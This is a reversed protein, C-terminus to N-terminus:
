LTVLRLRRHATGTRDHFKEFGKERLRESFAHSSLRERDTLGERDAWRKYLAYADRAHTADDSGADPDTCDQLFGALADNAERYNASALLVTPPPHLGDRQWAACGALMWNLISSAEDRLHDALTLDARSGTFTQDFPLVHCRRWFALSDDSVKPKHNAALLIKGEPVFSFYRGFLYRATIVEGGTLGKMRGEDLRTGERTESAVILRRSQFAALEPSPVDGGAGYRAAFAHFPAIHAYSGMVVGLTSLLVSKGNAGLGHLLVFVQERVDGTLCYGALRQLYAIVAVDGAFVEDLFRDFRPASADPDYAAGTCNRCLDSARAPRATGTRLDLTATPTTLLWKDRDWVDSTVALPPRRKALELVNDTGRRSELGLAFKLLRKRVDLDDLTLAHRQIARALEVVARQRTGTVDERWIPSQWAYWTAQQQDFRLDDGAHQALLEAAHADTLRSLDLDTLAAVPAAPTEADANRTSFTNAPLMQGRMAEALKGGIAATGYKLAHDLKADLERDSWPPHCTPNWESFLTLADGRDLDFDRALRCAVVFTATDGAQGEIAGPVKALYARARALKHDRDVSPPPVTPRADTAPKAPTPTALWTPDFVPLDSVPPWSGVRTYAVRTHHLSGPAVVYGGDGRVDLALGGGTIRAKTPVPVGPHRYFRHSGKATKTQMPTPPLHWEAWEDAAASDTDVVVVGSIAGTVIGINRPRGNGFWVALTDDSARADQFTKWASVPVKGIQKPDTAIPVDPHDLAIVSFGREDRLWTAFRLREASDTSGDLVDSM